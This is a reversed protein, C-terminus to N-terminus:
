GAEALQRAVRHGPQLERWQPEEAHPRALAAYPDDPDSPRTPDFFAM